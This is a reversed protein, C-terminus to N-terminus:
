RTTRSKMARTVSFAVPALTSSLRVGDCCTMLITLSSSFSRMPPALSFILSAELGGVTTM